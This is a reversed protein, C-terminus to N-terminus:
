LKRHNHFNTKVDCFITLFVTFIFSILFGGFSFINYIPTELLWTFLILKLSLGFLGNYKFLYGALFGFLIGGLFIGIVGFDMFLEGALTYINTDFPVYAVEAIISNREDHFEFVRNLLNFIASFNRLGLAFSSNFNDLLYDFAYIGSFYYAYISLVPEFIPNIDFTLCDKYRNGIGEFTNGARVFKPLMLIVCLVLGYFCYKFYPVKNVCLIIYGVICLICFLIGIRGFTQLDGLLIIIFFLSSILLFKKNKYYHYSALSLPFGIMALSALYSIITPKLQVGSGITEDRVLTGHALVYTLSGYYDIVYKWGLITALFSLLLILKLFFYVNVKIRKRIKICKLHEGFYSGLIISGCFLSFLVISLFSLPRYTIIFYGCLSLLIFVTYFVVSIKTFSFKSVFM